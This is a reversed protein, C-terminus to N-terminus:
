VFTVSHCLPTVLHKHADCFVSEQAKPSKKQGFICHGIPGYNVSLGIVASIELHIVFDEIETQIRKRQSRGVHDLRRHRLSTFLSKLDFKDCLVLREANLYKAISQSVTQQSISHRCACVIRRIRLENKDFVFVFSSVARAHVLTSGVNVHRVFCYM